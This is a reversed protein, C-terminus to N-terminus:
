NEKKSMEQLSNSISEIASGQLNMKPTSLVQYASVFISIVLGTFSIWFARQSFRLQSKLLNIERERAREDKTKYGQQVYTILEETVFIRSTAFRYLDARYEHDVGQLPITANEPKDGIFYPKSKDFNSNTITILANQELFRFLTVISAVLKFAQTEKKTFDLSEASDQEILFSADDQQPGVFLYFGGPLVVGKASHFINDMVNLVDDGQHIEIMTEIIRKELESFKRM